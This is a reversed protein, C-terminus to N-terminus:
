TTPLLSIGVAVFKALIAAFLVGPLAVIVRAWGPAGSVVGLYTGFLWGVMNILYSTVSFLMVVANIIAEASTLAYYFVVSGIWGVIAALQSAGSFMGGILPLRGAWSTQTPQQLIVYDVAIRTDNYGNYDSDLQEVTSRIKYGGSSANDYTYVQDVKTLTEETEYDLNGNSFKAVTVNVEPDTNNGVNELFITHGDQLNGRIWIQSTGEGIGNTKNETWTLTGKSPASPKDPFEGVIDFSSDGVTLNPIGSEDAASADTLGFVPGTFSILVVALSLIFLVGMDFKGINM